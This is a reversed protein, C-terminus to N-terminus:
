GLRELNQVRLVLQRGDFAQHLLEIHVVLAKGGLLGLPEDGAALFVAQPGVHHFHAVFVRALLDLNVLEIFFLALAFAHHVKALQHQAAELQQAVVVRDALVVLAAEPMDQDVLELVGVLQLVGPDLHQGAGARARGDGGVRTEVGSAAHQRHAVVVLADIRKTARPNAVHGVEHALEPHLVLDLQLLVVAAAAINQVTGVCEDAM